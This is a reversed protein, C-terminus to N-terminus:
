PAASEQTELLRVQTGETLIHVGALAIRDGKELGGTVLVRNLTMPGVQVNRREVQYVEGQVPVVRWVYYQGIEDVPVADLPVEFGSATAEAGRGSAEIRLTGAM